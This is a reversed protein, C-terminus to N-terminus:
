KGGSYTGSYVEVSCVCAIFHAAEGREETVFQLVYFCLYVYLRM